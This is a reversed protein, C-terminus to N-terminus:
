TEHARLHTYSVSVCTSSPTLPELNFSPTVTFANCFLVVISRYKLYSFPIQASVNGFVTSTPGSTSPGSTIASLVTEGVFLSHEPVASAISVKTPLMVVIILLPRPVTVLCSCVSFVASNDDLAVSNM